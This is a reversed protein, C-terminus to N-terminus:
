LMARFDSLSTEQPWQFRDEEIRRKVRVVSPTHLWPKPLECVRSHDYLRKFYERTTAKVGEPDCILKDPNDLDNLAFPVGTTAVTM